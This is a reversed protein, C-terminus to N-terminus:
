FRFRRGGHGGGGFSRRPPRERPPLDVYGEPKELLAKISLNIRGMSDIEKVIVKAKDGIHLIDSPKNVHRYAIESVHVLGDQGPLVNVFAGFDELRVVTGEYVEGATVEHTLEKVWKIAAELGVADSYTINVRGDQEIDISVGTVDIIMNIMKGGPGIVDRIM